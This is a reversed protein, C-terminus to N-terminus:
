GQGVAAAAGPVLGAAQMRALEEDVQAPTIPAHVQPLWRVFM